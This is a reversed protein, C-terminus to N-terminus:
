VGGREGQFCRRLVEQAQATVIVVLFAPLNSGTCKVTAGAPDVLNSQTDPYGPDVKLSFNYHYPPSTLTILIRGTTTSTQITPTFTPSTSTTLFSTLTRLEKWCPFFLNTSLFTSLHHVCSFLQSTAKTPPPVRVPPSSESPPPPPPHLALVEALERELLKKLNPPISLSGKVGQTDVTVVLNVHPYTEPFTFTVHLARYKTHTIKLTLFDPTSALTRCSPISSSVLSLETSLHSSPKTPPSLLSSM